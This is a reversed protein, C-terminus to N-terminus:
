FAKLLGHCQRAATNIPSDPCEIKKFAIAGFVRAFIGPILLEIHKNTKIRVTEPWKGTKVHQM